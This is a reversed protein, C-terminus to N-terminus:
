AKIIGRFYRDLQAKTEVKVEDLKAINECIGNRDKMDSAIEIEKFIYSMTVLGLQASSGSLRHSYKTIISFEAGNNISKQICDIGESFLQWYKDVLVSAYSSKLSELKDLIETDVVVDVMTTNSLVLSQKDNDGLEKNLFYKEVDAVFVDFDIPKGIFAYIGLEKAAERAESTADATIMIFKDNSIETIECLKTILAVGDINPLHFDCIVLDPTHEKSYVIADEGNTVSKVRYGEHKLLDSLIINSIGDDEILLIDYENLNAQPRSSEKLERNIALKSYEDCLNFANINEQKPLTPSLVSLFGESSLCQLTNTCISSTTWVLKAYQRFFGKPLIERLNMADEELINIDVVLIPFTDYEAVDVLCNLDKENQPFIHYCSTGAPLISNIYRDIEVEKSIVVIQKISKCFTEGRRTTPSEKFPLYFLVSTGVDIESEISIGGGLLYIAERAIAGGLGSGGHVRTRVDDVQYFRDFVRPLSVEPIGVGTDKITFVLQQAPYESLAISINVAGEYTYKVANGGLEILTRKLLRHDITVYRPIRPDIFFSIEINKAIGQAKLTNATAIFTNYLDENAEDQKMAGSELKTFDIIDGILNSLTHSASSAYSLYEIQQKNLNSRKLLEIIGVIGNLPTRLEHSINAIFTSKAKNAEDAKEKASNLRTLLAATYLPVIILGILMGFSMTLHQSWFQSSYIVAYFGVIATVMGYYLYSTGYRFGSGIISWLYFNFVGIGDAETFYLVLSIALNDATTSLVRRVPIVAPAVYVWAVSFAVVFFYSFSIHNINQLIASNSQYYINFYLYAFVVANLRIILQEDERGQTGSLRTIFKHYYSLFSQM